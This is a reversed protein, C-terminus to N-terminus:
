TMSDGRTPVSLPYCDSAPAPIAGAVSHASGVFHNRQPSAALAMEELDQDCVVPVTVSCGLQRLNWPLRLSGDTEPVSQPAPGIATPAPKAPVM